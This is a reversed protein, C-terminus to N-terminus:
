KSFRNVVRGLPTTDFFAMPSRLINALLGNHLFMAGKLSGLSLALSGFLITLGQGLGLGGYVGLRLDRKGLDQTGDPLPPDNSWATLWLNSGLSFASSAVNMLVIPVLWAAGIAGFYAFYVRWKVQGTEAFEAQVLKTPETEAAGKEGKLTVQSRSRSRSLTRNSQLSSANSSKRNSLDMSGARVPTSEVSASESLQRSLSRLFEKREAVSLEESSKRLSLQRRLVSCVSRAYFLAPAIPPISCFGFVNSICRNRLRNGVDKSFFHVISFLSLSNASTEQREEKRENWDGRRKTEELLHVRGGLLCLGGVKNKLAGNPGIVNEFIHRGVHSDVASLPDDLFYIDTDSYVARALSVRQKQGGSLNIGKEGIETMDGGPLVSLDSQLACPVLTPGARPREFQTKRDTRQNNMKAAKRRFLRQVVSFSNPHINVTGQIREMDGLLASLLSSKGAGVQGVLAVLKGKPIKINVDRLVPEEDRTWAFSGHEVTVPNVDDKEHTVYEELEENGLYKNMRKVSVSAQVLMSILMPLMSLPFRLINFLTLSVFAKQPGLVNENSMLVYTMFSMLSVLFPACNWLFSLVSSLYAMTRLNAVEKERIDQVQKEFSREWAYLKLVKMGGLIENMLKIREDKHKMQRTQLKKSYAALFGNIPVMLVMVGVGSLVAVGLLDWLFYLALAIQFPASWLMNLFVMLEMFKQADNSMLNVIEGTTSEKKAANSLVLSQPPLRCPSIFLCRRLSCVFIYMRQFYASLLLSQLTATAFMLVAYFIGKWLPEGSGVFGIMARLIQPSVFQLTDTGLKLVSGAVFMPGFTKALARVISLQSPKAGASKNSPESFKVEGEHNVHNHFSAAMDTREKTPAVRSVETQWHRDFTPVVQDTRDKFNLTWLDTPELPKRFGQYALSDFWSFLLRSLFSAGSEPCEKEESSPAHQRYVPKTDAFCNLLFQVLVLPYYAMYTGFFFAQGVRENPPHYSEDDEGPDAALAHKLHSRYAVLGCLLLLLWFLFLTGSSRIGRKKGALLLTAALLFTALKLFPTYFYVSPLAVGESLAATARM